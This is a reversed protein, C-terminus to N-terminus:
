PSTTELLASAHVFQVGAAALAPLRASLVQMTEPYPHGIGIAQGQNKAIAILQDLAASIVEPDRDHDLFVDRRGSKVGLKLAADYAVSQADTHSDVFYLRPREQLTQMLWEMRDPMSTLLSGMHNSLGAAQPISDLANRVATQLEQRTSTPAVGGPGMQRGSRAAMPLHVMVEKGLAYALEALERAHPTHPLVAYTIDGPLELARLGAQRVNGLDDIIIAVRPNDQGRAVPLAWAVIFLAASLLLVTRVFPRDTRKM